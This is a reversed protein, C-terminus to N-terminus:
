VANKIEKRNKKKFPKVGMEDWGTRKLEYDDVKQGEKMQAM